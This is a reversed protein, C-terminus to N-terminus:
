MALEFYRCDCIGLHMLVAVLGIAYGQFIRVGCCKRPKLLSGEGLLAGVAMERVGIKLPSYHNYGNHVRTKRM